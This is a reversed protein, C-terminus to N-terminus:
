PAKSADVGGAVTVRNKAQLRAFQRWCWLDRAWGWVRRWWPLKPAAKPPLLLLCGDCTVQDHAQAEWFVGRWKGCLTKRRWGGNFSPVKVSWHVFADSATKM